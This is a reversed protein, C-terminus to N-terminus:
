RTLTAHSFRRLGSGLLVFAYGFFAAVADDGVDKAEFPSGYIIHQLTEVSLGIAVVTVLAVAKRAPTKSVSVLLLATIGFAGFHFYRHAGSTTRMAVKVNLPLLSGIVLASIWLLIVAIPFRRSM